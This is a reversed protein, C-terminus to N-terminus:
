SENGHRPEKGQENFSPTVGRSTRLEVLVAGNREWAALARDRAAARDRSYDSECIASLMQWAGHLARDADELAAIARHLPEAM